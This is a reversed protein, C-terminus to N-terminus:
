AARRGVRTPQEPLVDLPRPHAAPLEGAGAGASPLRVPLTHHHVWLRLLSAAMRRGDRGAALRSGDQDVWVTPVEAVRFGLTRAVALLDVDFLFDRSSVLPVLRRMADARVVKAGCQTDRYPLRMVRRVALAFGASAARRPWARHGPVLSTPHWRSAIAAECDQDEVTHALRLLEQPPTACDADVFGVLDGDCRRFTELIVGGKGLRPYRYVRVRPDAAAYTDVVEATADTCDDLAVLLHVECDAERAARLYRDLTPGIRQQE